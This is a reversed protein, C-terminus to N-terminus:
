PRDRRVAERKCWLIGIRCKTKENMICDCDVAVDADAEPYIDDLRFMIIFNEKQRDTGDIWRTRVGM